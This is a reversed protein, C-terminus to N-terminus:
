ETPEKAPRAEASKSIVDQLMVQDMSLDAVLPGPKRNEEEFQTAQPLEPDGLGM